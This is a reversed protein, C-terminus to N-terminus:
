RAREIADAPLVVKGLSALLVAVRDNPRMGEVLGHLGYMPGSSIRVADGAKFPLKEPLTVLGYRERSRLEDIVSDPVRGPQDGNMLLGCIGPAWRAAHWQLRVTIFVYLPFLPRAVTVRKCARSLRREAIQPYWPDFGGRALSAVGLQERRLELRAVAWFPEAM